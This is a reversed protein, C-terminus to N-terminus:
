FDSIIDCIPGRVSSPLATAQRPPARSPGPAVGVDELAPTGPIPTGDKGVCQIPTGTCAEAISSGMKSTGWLGGSAPGRTGAARRAAPPRRLTSRRRQPSSTPGPPALTSESTQVYHIHHPPISQSHGRQNGAAYGVEGHGHEHGNGTTGTGSANGTGHRRQSACGECPMLHADLAM